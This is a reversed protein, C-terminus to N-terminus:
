KQTQLQQTKRIHGYNLLAVFVTGGILNGLVALGIFRASQGLTFQDSIFFATLMEVSGAISHHLGGMGILFTVIYICVIKTLTPGTAMILWAGLAMLWGALVSSVVLDNGTPSVLHHAVILYGEKAQITNEALVLMMASIAAGIINFTVVVSWLRVLKAASSRRDLVPYVATATHETFLQTGSMICIIFGLPYVLATALRTLTPDNADGMGTSVVGVIMATFGLIMGAALSSLSLSLIPRNLQEVGEDIAKELIDDPHRVVEDSRKVIVPLYEHDEVERSIARETIRAHHADDGKNSRSDSTNTSKNVGDDSCKEM